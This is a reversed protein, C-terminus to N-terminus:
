NQVDRLPYRWFALLAALCALGAVFSIRKLSGGDASAGTEAMLGFVLISLGIASKQFIAQVGFFIAERRQGSKQADDDVVDALLAYPLMFFGAVPVGVLGMVFMSQATASGFGLHPVLALMPVILATGLLTLVFMRYKGYKKALLNFVAFFVVSSILFPAMLLSVADQGLGLLQVVWYPAIMLVLNLGFWYLSTAVLLYVFARNGLTSKLWVLLGDRAAAGSASRAQLPKERIFLVTPLFSIVILLAVLGGVASWGWKQLIFGMAGFAVTGLMIFVAQLTTINLREAKDDSLEPLLALYPTVVVTYLIFYLQIFVFIYLANIGTTLGQPPVWLMFFVLALPLTGLVMFPLRRGFRSRTHDSWYAILPDTIADTIRGLMFITGFLAAPVLVLGAAVGGGTSGAAGAQLGADASVYRLFLWQSIVLNALNM